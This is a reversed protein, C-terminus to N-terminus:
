TVAAKGKDISSRLQGELGKRIEDNAVDKEDEEVDERTDSGPVMAMNSEKEQQTLEVEEDVEISPLIEGEKLMQLFTEQTIAGNMWLQMYSQIQPGDLQQLDFDRSIQVLPSEMGVYEGAMDFALQLAAELNKSVVSLLSDSDTRSLEKSAATEAGMKQSFLTSLGLNSMQQELQTIFASQSQFSSSAPEVYFANGDPPLLIATNASLGIESDEDQFGQMVLIPMASVHLCHCLDAQRQTHLINLNAIPLLPPKSILESVKNSYTISIPIEDLSTTGEKWLVWGSADSRGNGGDTKQRYVRWKGPELVRVQRIVKDGFEGVAESVLENIRIQSVPAIPSSIDKRWGLIQRADIHVLYPRHGLDREVQLNPAAQTSPFDVICAAHGYLVSSIIIRRAFTDLDTGLGDVNMKFDEWYPDVEADESRSTLNIAKRLILSACQEAVRTTYPSMVAHFVRRRYAAEEERAEIPLLVDSHERVYQTGGIVADIPGWQTSMDWVPGSIWSPDDGPNTDINEPEFLTEPSYLGSPYPNDAM